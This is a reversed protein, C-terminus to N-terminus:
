RKRNRKGGHKQRAWQAHRATKLAQFLRKMGQTSWKRWMMWINHIIQNLIVRWTAFSVSPDSCQLWAEYLIRMISTRRTRTKSALVSRRWTANVSHVHQYMLNQPVVTQVLADRTRTMEPSTGTIVNTQLGMTLIAIVKKYYGAWIPPKLLLYENSNLPLKEPLPANISHPTYYTALMTRHEDNKVGEIFQSAEVLNM